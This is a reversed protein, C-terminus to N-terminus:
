PTCTLPGIEPLTDAQGHFDFSLRCEFDADKLRLRNHDALGELYLRGDYGVWGAPQAADGLFAQAGMPVAEGGPQHLILTAARIRQMGFTIAVGSGRGPVVNARVRDIHLDLPLQTPDIEIKNNQYALLSPVLLRGDANTRGMPRNELRVPVDPVADTSIVTFGDYIRRSAFIGGDMAVLSGTAGTYLNRTHGSQSAGVNLDAYQTRWNLEGSGSASRQGDDGRPVTQQARVNWNWSNNEGASGSAGVSHNDADRARSTSAYASTGGGFNIILNLSVTRDGRDDLNQNAALSLNVGRALGRSWSLGGYRYRPQGVQELRAYNIGFSGLADLNIGAYASDNRRVPISGYHSAVDRFDDSARQASVGLSFLGRRLQYGLSYQSGRFTHDRSVARAGSLVGWTGLRVNAGLGGMTIGNSGEAHGELTLWRTLGYRLTGSGMLETAYDFSQYGYNRRVYGAEFSWDSLGEDLLVNTAYFPFSVATRRGLADTMVVQAEGAGSISPQFNLEFPGAPAQGSYQQIGDIYLQVASPMAATGFYAPLPTTIRYPQLSFDRAIKFGGFRTQRSWALNNTLADGLRLTIERDQLSHELASDMRVTTYDWRSQNGAKLAQTLVTSSITGLRNFARLESFGSLTSADDNTYSAYLDYNLLLGPSVSAQTRLGTDQGLVRTDLNLDSFPATIALTQHSQNYDAALGPYADLPADPSVRQLFDERFGLQRLTEASAHLHGQRETFQVLDPQANGNVTVLLFVPIGDGPTGGAEAPPPATLPPEGPAARDQLTAAAAPGAIAAAPALAGCL